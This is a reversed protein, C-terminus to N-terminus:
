TRIGPESEFCVSIGARGCAWRDCLDANSRAPGSHRIPCAHMCGAQDHQVQQARGALPPVRPM